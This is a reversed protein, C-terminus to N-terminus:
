FHVACAAIIGALWWKMVGRKLTGLSNPILFKKVELLICRGFRRLVELYDVKFTIMTQVNFWDVTHSAIHPVLGWLM